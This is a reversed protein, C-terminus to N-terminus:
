INEYFLLRAIWRQGTIEWLENTHQDEMGGVLCKIWKEECNYATDDNFIVWQDGKKVFAIFHRAAYAIVGFLNYFKKEGTSIKSLNLNLPFTFKTEYHKYTTTEPLRCLNIVLIRPPDNGMEWVSTSTM